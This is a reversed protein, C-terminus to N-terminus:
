HWTSDMCHTLSLRPEAKPNRRWPCRRARMSESEPSLGALLAHALYLASSSSVLCLGHWVIASFYYFKRLMPAGLVYSCLAACSGVFWVSGCQKENQFSRMKYYLSPRQLPLIGTAAYMNCNTRINKLAIQTQAMSRINDNVQHAALKCAKAANARYM